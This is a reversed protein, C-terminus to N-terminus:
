WKDLNITKPKIMERRTEPKVLPNRYTGTKFLVIRKRKMGNKTSIQIRKKYRPTQFDPACSAFLVLIIFYTFCKIWFWKFTIQKM